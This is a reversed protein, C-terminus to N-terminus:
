LFSRDTSRSALGSVARRTRMDGRARPSNDRYRRRNSIRRRSRAGSAAPLAGLGTGPLRRNRGQDERRPVAPGNDVSASIFGFQTSGPPTRGRIRTRHTTRLVRVSKPRAWPFSRHRAATSIPTTGLTPFERAGRSPFWPNPGYYLKSMVPAEPAEFGPEFGPPGTGITPCFVRLNGGDGAGHPLGIRGRLHYGGGAWM